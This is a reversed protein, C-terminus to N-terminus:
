PRKFLVVNNFAPLLGLERLYQEPPIVIAHATLIEEEDGNEHVLKIRDNRLMIRYFEQYSPLEWVTNTHTSVVLSRVELPTHGSLLLVPPSRWPLPQHGLAAANWYARLESLPVAKFGRIM